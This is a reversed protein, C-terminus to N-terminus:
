NIYLLFKNPIFAVKVKLCMKNQLTTAVLLHKVPPNTPVRTNLILNSNCFLFEFFSKFKSKLKLTPNLYSHTAFDPWLDEEGVVFFRGFNTVHLPLVTHNQLM